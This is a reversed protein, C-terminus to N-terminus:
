IRYKKAITRHLVALWVRRCLYPASIWRRWRAQQKAASPDVSRGPPLIETVKGAVKSIDCEETYRLNGDGKLTVKGDEVGIVRHLVWKGDWVEALAIDGPALEKCYVLRVSDRGGVIFPLMSVGKCTIVVPHGEALLDRVGSLMVDNPLTIRAPATM